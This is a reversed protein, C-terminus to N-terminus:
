VSLYLLNKLIIYLTQRLDVTYLATKYHKTEAIQYVMFITNKLDYFISAGGQLVPYNVTGLFSDKQSRFDNIFPSAEILISGLHIKIKEKNNKYSVFVGSVPMNQIFNVAGIFNEIGNSNVCDLPHNSSVLVIPININNFVFSLMASTYPLTDTGHNIIIGAYKSLDTKLIDNILLNWDSSILNESLINIPSRVEFM